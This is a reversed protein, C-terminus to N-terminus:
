LCVNYSSLNLHCPGQQFSCKFFSSGKQEEAVLVYRGMFCAQDIIRNANVWLVCPLVQERCGTARLEEQVWHIRIMLIFGKRMYEKTIGVRIQLCTLNNRASAIQLCIHPSMLTGEWVRTLQVSSGIVYKKQIRIDPSFHTVTLLWLSFRYSKAITQPINSWWLTESSVLLIKSVVNKRSKDYSHSNM